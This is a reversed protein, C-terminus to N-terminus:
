GKGGERGPEVRARGEDVQQPPDRGVVEGARAQLVGRAARRELDGVARGDDGDAVGAAHDHRTVPARGGAVRMALRRM